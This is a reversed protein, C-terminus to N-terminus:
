DHIGREVSNLSIGIGGKANARKTGTAPLLLKHARKKSRAGAQREDVTSPYVDPVGLYGKRGTFKLNNSWAVKLKRFIRQNTTRRFL